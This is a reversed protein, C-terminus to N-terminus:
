DLTGFRVCRINTVNAACAGTLAVVVIAVSMAMTTATATVMGVRGNRRRRMNRRDILIFESAVECLRTTFRESTSVSQFKTIMVFAGRVLNLRCLRLFRM